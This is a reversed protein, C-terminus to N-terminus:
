RFIDDYLRVVHVLNADPKFLSLTSVTLGSLSAELRLAQKFRTLYSKVMSMSIVLEVPSYSQLVGM